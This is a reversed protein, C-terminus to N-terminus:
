YINGCTAFTPRGAILMLHDTVSTPQPNQRDARDRKSTESRGRHPRGRFDAKGRGFYRAAVSVRDISM